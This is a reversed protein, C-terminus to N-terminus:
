QRDMTTGCSVATRAAGISTQLRLAVDNRWEVVPKLETGIV